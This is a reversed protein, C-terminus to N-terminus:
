EITLIDVFGTIDLIEMVDEVVHILKLQSETANARKLASLLVRLGASSVYVLKEFDLILLPTQPLEKLRSDLDIATNSDLRGELFVTISQEQEKTNIKLMDTVLIRNKTM